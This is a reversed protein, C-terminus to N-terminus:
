KRAFFDTVKSTSRKAPLRTFLSSGGRHASPMVNGGLIGRGSTPPKAKDLGKEVAQMCQSGGSEKAVLKNIADRKQREIGQESFGRVGGLPRSSRGSTGREGTFQSEPAGRGKWGCGGSSVGGTDASEDKSFLSTTPARVRPSVQPQNPREGIVSARVVPAGTAPGTDRSPKYGFKPKKTEQINKRITAVLSSEARKRGVESRFLSGTGEMGRNRLVDRIGEEQSAGPLSGAGRRIRMGDLESANPDVEGLTAGIRQEPGRKVAEEQENEGDDEAAFRFSTPFVEAENESDRTPSPVDSAGSGRARGGTDSPMGDPGADPRFGDEGEDASDEAEFHIDGDGFGEADEARGSGAGDGFGKSIINAEVEPIGELSAGADRWKTGQFGATRKRSSAGPGDMGNRDMGDASRKRGSQARKLEEELQGVRFDQKLVDREKEDIVERFHKIRGRLKANEEEAISVKQEAKRQAACAASVKEMFSKREDNRQELVKHQTAIVMDPNKGWTLKALASRDLSIDHLLSHEMDKAELAENREQLSKVIQELELKQMKARDREAVATSHACETVRAQHCLTDIRKKDEKTKAQLKEVEAQREQLSTQITECLAELRRLELISAQPPRNPSDARPPSGGEDQSELFVRLCKSHHFPVKCNPCVRKAAVNYWQYLCTDHFVHGCEHIAVWTLDPNNGELCVACAHGM